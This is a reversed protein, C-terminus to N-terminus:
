VEVGSAWRDCRRGIVVKTLVGVSGEGELVGRSSSRHRAAAKRGVGALERSDHQRPDMTSGHVPTRVMPECSTSKTWLNDM